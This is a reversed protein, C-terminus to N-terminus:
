LLREPAVPRTTRLYFGAARDATIHAAWGLLPWEVHGQGVSWVLFVPAWVLLSHFVNYLTPGWTPWSRGGRSAVGIPVFAAVDPFVVWGIALPVNLDGVVFGRWYFVVLFLVVTAVAM